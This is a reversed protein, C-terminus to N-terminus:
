IVFFLTGLIGICIGLGFGIFWVIMGYNRIRNLLVTAYSKTIDDVTQTVDEVIERATM